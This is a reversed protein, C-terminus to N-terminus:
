TLIDAGQKPETDRLWCKEPLRRFQDAPIHPLLDSLEMRVKAILSCQCISCARLLEDTPLRTNAVVENVISHISKMACASCNEIARNEPCQNCIYTRRVIEDKDVRRSGNKWWNYITRTGQKFTMSMVAFRSYTRTPTGDEDICFGPPLMQCMQDELAEDSPPTINNAECRKRVIDRLDNFTHTPGCWVLHPASEAIAELKFRWGGPPTQIKQTLRYKPM